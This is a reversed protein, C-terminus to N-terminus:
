LYIDKGVYNILLRNRDEDDFNKIFEIVRSDKWCTDIKNRWLTSFDDEIINGIIFPAMGDIRIDGNPRIVAGSRPMKSHNILGQKVSNASKVKMKGQFRLRNEEIKEKMLEKNCSSLLLDQNDNSRGSLSIGGIM